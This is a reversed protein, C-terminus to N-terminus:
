IKIFIKRKYLQHVILYIVFTYFLAWILSFLKPDLQTSIGFDMWVKQIGSGNIIPIQFAHWLVSHLIYALIANSGFVIGFHTYSLNKKHDILWICSALCLMALGSSFLVYSSTWIHKNIPFSYDWLMGLCLCLSGVFYIAIVKDKLSKNKNLILHGCFMGSVGTSIAPITSFFGEPDWTERYMKGPTIFRDVWAAFNNGPELTGATSDGFPIFTMFFWYIILCFIGILIQHHNKSQLYILSCFFYVLAIRQLVGAIRVSDFNFNPFLSLLVGIGFLIFTRKIIKFYNPSGSVKFKSLALVISVGVIFLFFPFVLDTPTAGHWEAHLLPSFVHSWSGPDNVVIMAAITLGRFFDLSLLRQKM